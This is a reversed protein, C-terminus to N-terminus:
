KAQKVSNAQEKVTNSFATAVSRLAVRQEDPLENIMKALALDEYQYESGATARGRGDPWLYELDPMIEIPHVHLIKSLKFVADINLPVIGRYYQSFATQGSWGCALGVSEQTLNLEQKKEAWIKIFRQLYDQEVATLERRQKAM